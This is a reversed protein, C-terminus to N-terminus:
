KGDDCVSFEKSAVVEYITSLKPPKFNKIKLKDMVYSFRLTRSIRIPQNFDPSNLTKKMQNHVCGM